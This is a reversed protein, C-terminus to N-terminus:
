NKRSNTDRVMQKIDEPWELRFVTPVCAKHHGVVIGGVGHVSADKIAVYGPEGMVLEKCPTPDKTSERFLTRCDEICQLLARNRQLFVFDPKLRLVANCPTLMGYGAPLAMFAHRMKAIVSEFEAFPIGSQGAKAGRIWKHLITLLFERKAVALIMTKKDGDFDFGLIEKLLAWEGEGKELKKLSIPDVAADESAPFVDHIGMMVATSIHELQEKSTAIAMPIFDDVYVDVFYAFGRNNSVKEPLAQADAGKMAYATFKHKPLTGLPVEAYDVAVDRATESAACFYPPSEVWGMQLSTPKVLVVPKGPEQPLVYCFNWEEGEQCDLRSFGDKIDYKAMFIKADEDAEAFAHIVRQLSHGLQDIAGAPASLTTSANVSNLLEGNKLKLKFSLDLIARYKRSKHPIMAIPSIKLQEPPNDKISDWLVLEAQGIKVKQKLEEALQEIADQELASVHPGRDIAEQMQAKTWPQGTNAPCGGTAYKLLEAAAPHHLALGTPCMQGKWQKPAQKPVPISFQGDFHRWYSQVPQQEQKELRKKKNERRHQRKNSGDVRNGDALTPHNLGPYAEKRSMLSPMEGESDFSDLKVQPVAIDGGKSNPSNMIVRPGDVEAESTDVTM